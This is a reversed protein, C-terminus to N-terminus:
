ECRCWHWPERCTAITGPPCFGDCDEVDRCDRWMKSAGDPGETSNDVVDMITPALKKTNADRIATVFAFGCTGLVLLALFAVKFSSTMM